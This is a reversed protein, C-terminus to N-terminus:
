GNREREAQGVPCIADTTCSARDCLRCLLDANGIEAYLGTLVKDLLGSLIAREAPDLVALAQALRGSRAALIDAATRRGRRTLRIAIERGQGPRREALQRSVLADVMRASAPQSLGVRRGLETGNLGPSVTLVVLASAASPGVGSLETVGELMLDTVALAAAGLLNGTRPDHM